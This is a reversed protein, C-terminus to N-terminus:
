AENLEQWREQTLTERWVATVRGKHFGIFHRVRPRYPDTYIWVVDTEDDPFRFVSGLARFFDTPTAMSDRSTVSEPGGLIREVEPQSLGSEIRALRDRYERMM